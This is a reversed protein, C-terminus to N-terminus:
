KWEFTIDATSKFTIDDMDGTNVTLKRIEVPNLTEYSKDTIKSNINNDYQYKESAPLLIRRAVLRSDKYDNIKTCSYIYSIYSSNEETSFVIRNIDKIETEISQYNIITGSFNFRIHSISHGNKEDAIYGGVSFSGNNGSIIKDSVTFGDIFFDNEFKISSDKFIKLLTFGEDRGHITESKCLLLIDYSPNQYLIDLISLNKAPEHLIYKSNINTETDYKIITIRSKNDASIYFGAITLVDDPTCIIRVPVPYININESSILFELKICKMSNTSPNILLLIPEYISSSENETQGTIAITGDSMLAASLAFTSTNSGLIYRWKIKKDPSIKFLLIDSQFSVPDFQNCIFIFNKDTDTMQAAIRGHKGSKITSEFLTNGSFDLSAIWINEIDNEYIPSGSIVYEDYKNQINILASTSFIKDFFTNLNDAPHEPQSTSDPPSSELVEDHLINGCASIAICTFLLFLYFYFQGFNLCM